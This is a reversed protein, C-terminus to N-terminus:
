VAPHRHIPDAAGLRETHGTPETPEASIGRAAGTNSGTTHHPNNRAPGFGAIVDHLHHQRADRLARAAAQLDDRGGRDYVKWLFVLTITLGLVGILGAALVVAATTLEM